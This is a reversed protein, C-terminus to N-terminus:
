VAVACRPKGITQLPRLFPDRCCDGCSDGPSLYDRYRMGEDVLGWLTVYGWFPGIYAEIKVEM